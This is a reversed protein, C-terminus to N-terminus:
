SKIANVVSEVVNDGVIWFERYNGGLKSRTGDDAVVYAREAPIATMGAFGQGAGPENFTLAIGKLPANGFMKRRQNEQIFYNLERGCFPSRFWQPTAVFVMASAQAMAALYYDAWGENMSALGGATPRFARMELKTGPMSSLAVTDLYVNNPQSLGLRKMLELRLWQAFLAGGGAAGFSLVVHTRGYKRILIDVRGNNAAHRNGRVSQNTPLGIKPSRNFM